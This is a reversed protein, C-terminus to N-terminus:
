INFNKICERPKILIKVYGKGGEGRIRSPFSETFKAGIKCRSIDLPRSM